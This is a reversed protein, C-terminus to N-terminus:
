TKDPSWGSQQGLVKESIEVVNRSLSEWNAGSANKNTQLAQV